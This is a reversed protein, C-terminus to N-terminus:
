LSTACASRPTKPARVAHAPALRARLPTGGPHPGAGGRCPVGAAHPPPPSRDSPQPTGPRPGGTGAQECPETGKALDSALDGLLERRAAVLAQSRTRQAVSRAEARLADRGDRQAREALADVDVDAVDLPWPDALWRLPEEPAAAFAAPDIAFLFWGTDEPDPSAATFEFQAVPRRDLTFRYGELTADELGDAALRRDLDWTFVQGRARDSFQQCAAM